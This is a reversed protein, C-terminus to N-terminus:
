GNRHLVEPDLRQAKKESVFALVAHAKQAVHVDTPNRRAHRWATVQGAREHALADVLYKADVLTRIEGRLTEGIGDDIRELAIAEVM